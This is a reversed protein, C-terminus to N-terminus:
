GVGEQVLMGEAKIIRDEIVKKAAPTLGPRRLDQRLKEIFRKHAKLRDPETIVPTTPGATANHKLRAHYWKTEVNLRSERPSYANPDYPIYRKM